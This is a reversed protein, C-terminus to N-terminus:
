VCLMLYPIPCIIVTCSLTQGGGPSGLHSLLLSDAQVEDAIYSTRTPNRPFSIAVWALIRVQFIGPPSCDTPNCLILCAQAVLM